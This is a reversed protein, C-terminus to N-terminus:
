MTELIRIVQYKVVDSGQMGIVYGLVQDKQEKTLETTEALVAQWLKWNNKMMEPLVEQAQERSTMLRTSDVTFIADLVVDLVTFPREEGTPENLANVLAKMRVSGDRDLITTALIDQKKAKSM